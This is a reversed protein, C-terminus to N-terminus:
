VKEEHSIEKTRCKVGYYYYICFRNKLPASGAQMEAGVVLMFGMCPPVALPGFSVLPTGGTGKACM